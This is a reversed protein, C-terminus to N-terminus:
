EDGRPNRLVCGSFRYAFTTKIVSMSTKRLCISLIGFKCIRQKKKNRRTEGEQIEFLDQKGGRFKDGWGPKRFFKM